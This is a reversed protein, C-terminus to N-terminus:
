SSYSFSGPWNQFSKFSFPFTYDGTALKNGDFLRVTATALERREEHFEM